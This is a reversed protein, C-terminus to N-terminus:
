QNNNISIKFAEIIDKQKNTFKKAAEEYNISQKTWEKYDVAQPPNKEKKILTVIGIYEKDKFTYADGDIYNESLFTAYVINGHTDRCEKIARDSSSYWGHLEKSM